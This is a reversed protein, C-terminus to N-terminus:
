QTPLGPLPMETGKRIHATLLRVTGEADRRLASELLARHEDLLEQGRFGITRLAMLQYRRYQDHIVRHERLIWRSNCASMLAVHFGLDLKQWTEYHSNPDEMMQQESKTLMHHAAVVRGEWELDGLAISKRVAHCEILQRLEGIERLDVVSVPVVRFGKQGEAEVLRESALRALTERLTNISVDYNRKLVDLKLKLGPELAGHLIDKRLRAYVQEGVSGHSADETDTPATDGLKHLLDTRM